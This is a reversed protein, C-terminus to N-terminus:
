CTNRDHNEGKFKNLISLMEDLKRNAESNIDKKDSESRSPKFLNGLCLAAKKTFVGSDRLIKEFEKQTKIHEVDEITLKSKEAFPSDMDMKKYYKEIHSIVRARDEDPMDVGGRAGRMAAAAAFIAAPIATLKGGIVDAFPLKYAGFNDANEEDFWFFANRYLKSPEDASDTLKRVREDAADNDWERDRSAIPLDHYVTAGKVETITAKANMPESVVSVEWLELEKITRVDNKPNYEYDQITFGISLDSLAGQKMLSYIEKGLQTDLNLEGKVNWNKGDKEVTKIPIIGIPLGFVNHQYFLKIPRKAKRYRKLSNDFADPAIVDNGRDKDETAMAGSFVGLQQNSKEERCIEDLSFSFTKYELGTKPIEFEDKKEPM